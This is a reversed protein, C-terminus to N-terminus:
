DACALDKHMEGIVTGTNAKRKSQAGLFFFGSNEWRDVLLSIIYLTQVMQHIASIMLNNHVLAFAPLGSNPDARSRKHVEDVQAPIPGRKSKHVWFFASNELIRGGLLSLTSIYLEAGRPHMASIMLSNHVLAFPRPWVL